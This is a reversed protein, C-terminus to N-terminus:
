LEYMDCAATKGSGFGGPLERAAAQADDKPFHAGGAASGRM